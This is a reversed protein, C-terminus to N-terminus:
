LASTINLARASLHARLGKFEAHLDLAAMPKLLPLVHVEIRHIERTFVEKVFFEQDQKDVSFGGLSVKVPEMRDKAVLFHKLAGQYSTLVLDVLSCVSSLIPFTTFCTCATISCLTTIANRNLKLTNDLLANTHHLRAQVSLTTELITSLCSCASEAFDHFNIQDCDRDQLHDTMNIAYSGRSSFLDLDPIPGQCIEEQSSASDKELRSRLASSQQSKPLVNHSAPASNVEGESMSPSLIQRHSELQIQIQNETPLSGYNNSGANAVMDKAPLPDDLSLLGADVTTGGYGSDAPWLFDAVSSLEAETPHAQAIDAPTQSAYLSEWERSEISAPTLPGVSKQVSNRRRQRPVAPSFRCQRGALDCRECQEDTLKKCKVKAAHCVDCSSRVKVSM